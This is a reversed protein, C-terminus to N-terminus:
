ISTNCAWLMVDSHVECNGNRLNENKQCELVKYITHFLEYLHLLM